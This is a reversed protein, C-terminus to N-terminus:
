ASTEPYAGKWLQTAKCGRLWCWLGGVAALNLVIFTYALRVLHGRIAGGVWEKAWGLAVLGYFVVQGVATALYFWGGAAISGVLLGILAYPVLLRFVKHAWVRLWTSPNGWPTLLGPELAFAQFNGALTRIKRRFEQQTKSPPRDVEAKELALKLHAQGLTLYAQHRNQDLEVAKGAYKLVLEASGKKGMKLYAEACSTLTKVQDPKLALAEEFKEIAKYLRRNKLLLVGQDHLKEAKSHGGCGIAAVAVFLILTGLAALPINPRGASPPNLRM